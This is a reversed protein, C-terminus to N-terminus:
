KFSVKCTSLLHIHVWFLNSTWSEFFFFAACYVICVPCGVVVNSTIDESVQSIPLFSVAGSM